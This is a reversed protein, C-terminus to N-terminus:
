FTFDLKMTQIQTTTEEITKFLYALLMIAINAIPALATLLSKIDEYLGSVFQHFADLGAKLFESIANRAEDHMILAVIASGLLVGLLIQAWDPLKSIAEITGKAINSLIAILTGIIEVLVRLVAVAAQFLMYFVAPLLNAIIFFSFSGKKFLTVVSGLKGLKWVRVKSQEIIDKDRSIIGESRIEFHLAAFPIDKEDREGVTIFGRIWAMLDKTEKLKINPLFKKQWAGMLVKRDVKMEESIESMKEEVEAKLVTPAHFRVFPEQMLQHLKSQGKKVMSLLDAIISSSDVVINLELKTSHGLFYAINQQFNRKLYLLLQPPVGEMVKELSKDIEQLDIGQLKMHLEGVSDLLIHNRKIAVGKKWYAPLRYLVACPM